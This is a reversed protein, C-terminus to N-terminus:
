QTVGRNQNSPITKDDPLATTVTPASATLTAGTFTDMAQLTTPGLLPVAQNIQNVAPTNEVQFIAEAPSGTIGTTAPVTPVTWSILGSAANCTPATSANSKIVGTCTTGSQLSASIAVNAADTSYNTIVWHITYQTTQNVKPPYPGSNLIGSGADRWYGPAAIAVKGGVKNEVSVASVTTSANTGPPVTASFIQANVKLTYNKDGLVRIPYASKTKVQFNVSGSQGAALNLLQPANAGYWTVTNTISNFSGNTQMTSFDYMGGVLTAKLNIDQFTVNSDNTYTLTYILTDDLKSVYDSANNLTIALSLPSAGIALNATAKTLPYTGGMVSAASGALDGELAYIASEPGVVNGTITINGSGKAPITGLNWKNNGASDTPMSSRTFSFVPPYQFTLEVNRFSHSTNNAYAVAIDFDQGSFVNPPVSINLGIAPDGVRIDVGGNTKFQTKSTADTSYTLTADIHKISNPDGTVILNAVNEGNFKYISGPGLDGIVQELVTSQPQGVFSVNNPLAVSLTANKLIDSSYNTLAINLSFPDGVLVQDPKTFEISVNPGAPPRMFFFYFAGGGVLVVFIVAFWLWSAHSKPSKVEAIERVPRVPPPTEPPEYRYTKKKSGWISNPNYKPM